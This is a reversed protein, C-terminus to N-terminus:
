KKVTKALQRKKCKEKIKTCQDVLVFMLLIFIITHKASLWKLTFFM